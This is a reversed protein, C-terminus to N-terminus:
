VPVAEINSSAPNVSAAGVVDFADVPVGRTTM